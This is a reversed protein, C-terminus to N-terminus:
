NQKPRLREYQKTLFDDLTIVWEAGPEPFYEGIKSDKKPRHVLWGDATLLRLRSDVTDEVWQFIGNSASVAKLATPLFSPDREKLGDWIGAQVGQLCMLIWGAVRAKEMLLQEREPLPDLSEAFAARCWMWAEPTVARVIPNECNWVVKGGSAACLQLFTCRMRSEMRPRLSFSLRSPTDATGVLDNTWLPSLGRPMDLAQVRNRRLCIRDPPLTAPHWAIGDYPDDDDEDGLSYVVDVRKSNWIFNEDRGYEYALSVVTTIPPILPAWTAERSNGNQKMAIWRPSINEPLNKGTLCCNLCAYLSDESRVLFQRCLEASEQRIRDLAALAKRNMTLEHRNVGIRGAEASTWDIETICGPQLSQGLEYEGSPAHLRMGKWSTIVRSPPLYSHGKGVGNM